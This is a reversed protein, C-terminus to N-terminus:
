TAQNRSVPEIFPLAIHLGFLRIKNMPSVMVWHCKSTKPFRPLPRVLYDFGASNYGGLGILQHSLQVVAHWPQKIRLVKVSPHGALGLCSAHPRIRSLNGGLRFLPHFLGAAEDNPTYARM